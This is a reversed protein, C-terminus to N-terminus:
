RAAGSGSALRERFEMVSPSRGFLGSEQDTPTAAAAPLVGLPVEDGAVLQARDLGPYALVEAAVHQREDGPEVM